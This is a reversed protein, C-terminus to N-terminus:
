IFMKPTFGGQYTGPIPMMIDGVNDKDSSYESLIVKMYHYWTSECEPYVKSPEVLLHYGGRTELISYATSNIVANVKRIISGIKEKNALDFDFTVYVTRSKSKQIESLVESNPNYGNYPQWSLLQLKQISSRTAAVLDRPNATMYLALSEQPAAVMGSGVGKALYTGLPVELQKIKNLLRGKDSTFRKLQAKDSKIHAIDKCYKSRAFLCCYFTENPSLEPLWEIFSVLAAEDTVIKYNM